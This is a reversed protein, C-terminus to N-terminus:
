AKAKVQINVEVEPETGDPRVLGHYVLVMDVRMSEDREYEALLKQVGAKLLALKEGSNLTENQMETEREEAECTPCIDTDQDKCDEWLFDQGCVRCEAWPGAEPPEMADYARQARSFGNDDRSM